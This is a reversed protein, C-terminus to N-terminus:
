VKLGDLDDEYMNACSCKTFWGRIWRPSDVFGTDKVATKSDFRSQVTPTGDSLVTIGQASTPFARLLARPGTLFNRFMEEISPASPYTQIHGRLVPIWRNSGNNLVTLKVLLPNNSSLDVLGSVSQILSHLYSACLVFFFDLSSRSIKTHNESRRRAKTDTVCVGVRIPLRDDIDNFNRHEHYAAIPPQQDQLESTRPFVLLHFQELCCYIRTLHVSVELRPARQNHIGPTLTPNRPAALGTTHLLNKINAIDQRATKPRQWMCRDIFRSHGIDATEPRSVQQKIVVDVTFNKLPQIHLMAISQWTLRRRNPYILRLTNFFILGFPIFSIRYQKEFNLAAFGRRGQVKAESCSEDVTTRGDKRQAGGSTARRFIRRALGTWDPEMCPAALSPSCPVDSMSPHYLFNISLSMSCAWVRGPSGSMPSKGAADPTEENAPTQKSQPPQVHDETPAGSSRCSQMDQNKSKSPCGVLELVALFVGDISREVPSTVTYICCIDWTALITFFTSPLSISSEFLMTTSSAVVLERHGSVSIHLYSLATCRPLGHSAITVAQHKQKNGEPLRKCICVVAVAPLYYNILGDSKDDVHVRKAPTSGSTELYAKAIRRRHRLRLTSTITRRAPQSPQMIVTLCSSLATKSETSRNHAAVSARHPSPLSASSPSKGVQRQANQYIMDGLRALLNLLFVFSGSRTSASASTCVWRRWPCPTQTTASSKAESLYWTHARSKGRNAIDREHHMMKANWVSKAKLAENPQPACDIAGHLFVAVAEQEFLHTADGLSRERVFMLFVLRSAPQKADRMAHKTCSEVAKTHLAALMRGFQELTQSISRDPM